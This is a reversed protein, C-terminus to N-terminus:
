RNFFHIRFFQDCGVRSTHTSICYQSSNREWVQDCGVRSTHTSIFNLQDRGCRFRTVDWVPHTLLFISIACYFSCFTDADCGVRSTHTSIRLRQQQQLVKQTVDWVPHTLLFGGTRETGGLATTVDWVPHTLLFIFARAGYHLRTLWMGCPIHSYFNACAM